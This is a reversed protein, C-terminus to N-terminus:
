EFFREDFSVGFEALLARLEDSSSVRRHHEEQGLIYAIVADTDGRSVSFAGYGEQWAFGSYHQRAWTTSAKKTERVLDAVTVAARIGVLAHVHDGVGGVALPVASLGRLTGGIYGHFDSRWEPRIVDVRGKTAFVLHVFLSLYTAM